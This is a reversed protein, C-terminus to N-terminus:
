IAGYLKLLVIVLAALAGIAIILSARSEKSSRDILQTEMNKLISHTSNRMVMVDKAILNLRDEFEHLAAQVTTAATNDIAVSAPNTNVQPAANREKIKGVEAKLDEIAANTGAFAATINRELSMIDAATTGTHGEKPNGLSEILTKLEAQGTIITAIATNDISEAQPLNEANAPQDPLFKLENIKADIKDALSQLRNGTEDAIAKQSEQATATFEKVADTLSNISQAYNSLASNINSAAAVVEEVQKRASDIQELSAELRSLSKTIEQINNETAM